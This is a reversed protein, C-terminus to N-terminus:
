ALTVAETEHRVKPIFVETQRFIDIAKKLNNKINFVLKQLLKRGLFKINQPPETDGGCPGAVKGM